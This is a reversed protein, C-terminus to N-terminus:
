VPQCNEAIVLAGWVRAAVRGRKPIVRHPKNVDFAFLFLSLRGAAVKARRLGYAMTLDPRHLMESLVICSFKAINLSYAYGSSVLKCAFYISISPGKGCRSQGQSPRLGSDSGAPTERM